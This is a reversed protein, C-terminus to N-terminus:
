VRTPVPTRNLWTVALALAVFLSGGVGATAPGFAPGYRDVVAGVLPAGIALGVTLASTYWGMAEGRASAPALRSVEDATSALTPACMVGAPVLALALAWWQGALGVPITFLGLLGMLVLPPLSRRAAGHVFGGILSYAGWLAIVLGIWQVQGAHRLVAVIAVDTGALVLTTGSVAVLIAVMRPGLWQRRPPAAGPKAGAEDGGRIPPNLAYLGIGSGVMAAGVGILAVTTSARTAVLVALAPGVMFSLVVSMSDVSYAQRRQEPPVLAALSQRVVTFVPLALLGAVFSAVLLASYPLFPSVAWFVGEAVTTVALVPRLGRRDVFRGVLPAGLASAVTSAAGVLGAAGYGRDLDLVVHLTLTVGAATLPVRALLAVLVLPRVGPLALVRRYPEVRM